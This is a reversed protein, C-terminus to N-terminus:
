PAALLRAAYRATKEDLHFKNVGLQFLREELERAQKATLGDSRRHQREVRAKRKKVSV